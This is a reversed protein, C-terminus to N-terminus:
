GAMTVLYDVELDRRLTHFVSCYRQFSLRIAQDIEAKSVSGKVEFELEIRRLFQPPEPNREGKVSVRFGSLQDRVAQLLLLVNMSMSACFSGLLTQMPSLGTRLEADIEQGAGGQHKILFRLDGLWSVDLQLHAHNRMLTGKRSSPGLTFADVGNM